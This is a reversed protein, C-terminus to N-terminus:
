YIECCSYNIFGGSFPDVIQQKSEQQIKKHLQEQENQWKAEEKLAIGKQKDVELQKRYFDYDVGGNEMESYIDKEQGEKFLFGQLIIDKKTIQKLFKAITDHKHVTQSLYKDEKKYHLQLLIKGDEMVEFVPYATKLYTNILVEKFGSKKGKHVSLAKKVKDMIYLWKKHTDNQAKYNVQAM